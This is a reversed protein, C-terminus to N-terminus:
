FAYSSVNELRAYVYSSKSIGIRSQEFFYEAAKEKSKNNLAVGLYAMVYRGFFIDDVILKENLALELLETSYKELAEFNKSVKLYEMKSIHYLSFNCESFCIEELSIYNQETSHISLSLALAYRKNVIDDSDEFLGKLEIAKANEGLLELLLIRDTYLELYSNHKKPIVNFNYNLYDNLEELSSYAKFFQVKRLFLEISVLKDQLLGALKTLEILDKKAVTQNNLNAEFDAVLNWFEKDAPGNSVEASCSLSLLVIFFVFIHRM